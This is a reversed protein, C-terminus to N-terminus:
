NKIFKKTVVGSESTLKIVYVSPSLSSVDISNSVNNLSLVQKGLLSYVSVNQLPELTDIYLANAVPNPYMKFAFAENRDGTSLVVDNRTITIRNQLLTNINTGGAEYFGLSWNFYYAGSGVLASYVDAQIGTVEEVISTEGSGLNQLRVKKTTSAADAGITYEQIIDYASKDAQSISLANAFSGVTNSLEVTGGNAILTKIIVGDRTQGLVSAQTPNASVTLGVLAMDKDSGSFSQNNYGLMMVSNVTIVDGVNGTIPASLVSYAFNAQTYIQSNAGSSIWTSANNFHGAAWDVHLDLDQAEIASYSPDTFDESYITTQAQIVLCALFSLISLYNKKM